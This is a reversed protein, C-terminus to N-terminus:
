DTNDDSDEDPDVFTNRRRRSGAGTRGRAPRASAQGHGEGRSSKPELDGVKVAYRRRNRLYQKVMEKTAWNAPFRKKNLYPFEMRM